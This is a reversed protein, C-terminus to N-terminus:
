LPAVIREIPIQGHRVETVATWIAAAAHPYSWETMRVGETEQNWPRDFVVRAWPPVINRGEIVPRDDILVDGQVITKDYSLILAERAWTGFHRALWEYKETPSERNMPHPTSLFMVDHGDARLHDIAEKAGPTVDLDAFLRPHSWAWAIVDQAADSLGDGFSWGTRKEYRLIEECAPDDLIDLYGDFSRMLEAVVDDLDVLIRLNTTM